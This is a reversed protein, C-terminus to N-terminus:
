LKTSYVLPGNLPSVDCLRVQVTNLVFVDSSPETQATRGGFFFVRKPVDPVTSATHGHCKGPGRGVVSLRKWAFVGFTTELCWLDDPAFADPNELLKGPKDRERSSAQGGGGGGGRSSPSNCFNKFESFTGMPTCELAGIDQEHGLHSPEYQSTPAGGGGGSSDNSQFSQFSQFSQTSHNSYTSDMSTAHNIRGGRGGGGGRDRTTGRAHHKAQFVQRRRERQDEKEMLGNNMRTGRMTSKMQATLGGYILIGLGPVHTATHGSRPPPLGGGGGQQNTNKKSKGKGAVSPHIAKCKLTETDVTYVDNFYRDTMFTMDLGAGGMILLQPPTGRRTYLLTSTHGRRATPRDVASGEVNHSTWAWTTTDLSYLDQYVERKNLGSSSGEGGFVWVHRGVVTASHGSRPSPRNERTEILKWGVTRRANSNLLGASPSAELSASAYTAGGQFTAQRGPVGGATAKAKKAEKRQEQVRTYRRGVTASARISATDLTAVDDFRTAAPASSSSSAGASVGGRVAGVGGFVVIQGGIVVAAAKERAGAAPAANIGPPLCPVHECRDPANLKDDDEESTYVADVPANWRRVVQAPPPSPAHYTLLHTLSHGVWSATVQAATIAHAFAHTFPQLGVCSAAARASPWASRCPRSVRGFDKQLRALFRDKSETTYSM